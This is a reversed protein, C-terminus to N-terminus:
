ESIGWYLRIMDMRYETQQNGLLTLNEKERMAEEEIEVCPRRRSEGSISSRSWHMNRMKRLAERWRRLLVMDIWVSSGTRIWDTSSRSQICKCFSSRNEASTRLKGSQKMWRRISYRHAIRILLVPLIMQMLEMIFWEVNRAWHSVQQRLFFYGM